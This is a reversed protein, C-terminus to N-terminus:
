RFAEIESLDIIKNECEENTGFYRCEKINLVKDVYSVGEIRYNIQPETNSGVEPIAIQTSEGNVLNLVSIGNALESYWGASGCDEYILSSNDWLVENLSTNTSCFDESVYGQENVLYTGSENGSGYRLLFSNLKSQSFDYKIINISQIMHRFEIDKLVFKTESSNEWYTVELDAICLDNCIEAEENFDGSKINLFKFSNERDTDILQSETGSDQNVEKDEEIDTIDTKEDVYYQKYVYYGGMGIILLLLIGVIIPFVKSKKPKNEGVMSEQGEEVPVYVQEVSSIYDSLPKENEAM